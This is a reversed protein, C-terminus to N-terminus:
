FRFGLRIPFFLAKQRYALGSQLYMSLYSYLGFRIQLGILFEGLVDGQNSLNGSFVYEYGARVGIFPNIYSNSVFYNLEGFLSASSFDNYSMYGAGVGLFRVENKDWGWIANVNFVPAEKLKLATPTKPLTSTYFLLSGGELKIFHRTDSAEYQAFIVSFILLFGITLVKKFLMIGIKILWVKQHCLNCNGM